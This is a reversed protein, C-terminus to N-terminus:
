LHHPPSQATEMSVPCETDTDKEWSIQQNEQRLYVHVVTVRHETHVSRLGSGLSQFIYPRIFSLHCLLHTFPQQASCLFPLFLTLFVYLFLPFFCFSHSKVTIHPCSLFSLHSSLFFSLVHFYIIFYVTM